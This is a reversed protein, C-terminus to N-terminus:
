RKQAVPVSVYNRAMMFCHTHFSAKWNPLRREQVLEEIKIWLAEKIENDIWVSVHGASSPGASDAEPLRPCVILAAEGREYLCNGWRVCM